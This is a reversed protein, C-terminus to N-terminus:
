TLLDDCVKLISGFRDLFHPRDGAALEHRNGDHDLVSSEFYESQTLISWRPGFDDEENITSHDSAPTGTLKHASVGITREVEETKTLDVEAEHSTVASATSFAPPHYYYYETGPIPRFHTLIIASLLEMVSSQSEFAAPDLKSLMSGDIDLAFKQCDQLAKKFDDVAVPVQMLM